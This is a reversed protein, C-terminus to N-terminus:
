NREPSGDVDLVERPVRGTLPVGCKLILEILQDKKLAEIKRARFTNRMFDLAREDEAIDTEKAVALIQAITKPKLYAETMKWETGLNIGLWPAIFHHCLHGFSAGAAFTVAAWRILDKVQDLPLNWVAKYASEGWYYFERDKLGARKCLEPIIEERGGNVLAALVLRLLIENSRGVGSTPGLDAPLTGLEKRIRSRYFRERSDRATTKGREALGAAMSGARQKGRWCSPRVCVEEQYVSGNAAIVTVRDPCSECEADKGSKYIHEYQDYRLMGNLRFGNTGCKKAAASEAWHETFYAVLAERFCEPNHCRVKKDDDLAGFLGRQVGSNHPCKKCRDKPFPAGHLDPADRNIQDKLQAVTASHWMQKYHRMVEEPSGLRLFQELHGYLLDGKDWADLIERPLELVKVRRRIYRADVGIRGALTLAADDGRADLWTKFNQAEELETLDERQLNEITMIDLADDDSLERVIAPIATLGADISARYRREGAVLEYTGNGNLPRIVVPSIVGKVRISDALEKLKAVDFYKRPNVPSPSIEALEIYAFMEGGSAPAEETQKKKVKEGKVM